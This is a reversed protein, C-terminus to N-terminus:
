GFTNWLTWGGLICTLAGVLLRLDVRRSVVRTTWAAVPAAVAAGAVIPLAFAWNEPFWAFGDNLGLYLSFGVACIISEAVSTVGVSSVASNGSLIQGSVVLPGYGGGSIGKNFASVLGLGFIRRWSFAITRRRLVLVLLGMALVMAGIYGKLVVKSINTAVFVACVAGAAGTAGLVGILQRDRSRRHLSINGLGHHFLGALLGSVFESLLVTPVILLPPYDLLLLIPTLTTGYGMGLASDVTECAFALLILAATM